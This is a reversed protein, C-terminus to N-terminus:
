GRLCEQWLREMLEGAGPLDKIEGVGKGAFLCMEAVGSGTDTRSPMGTRYRVRPNGSANMALVDGEGPRKGPAPCGAAEWMTLTRNRLAGHPANTWGDQFCVTLVSDSSKAAVLAAKYDQHVFAERTAVFRTGMFVGSAGVLLARRIDQGTAVGGAALVPTTKAIDLVRPLTEELPSIAQVHGGAATGQCILYDAGLDLARAAGEPSAIQVGMKAGAKRIAAVFENSPIGWSFQVIPVGADLVIQLTTVDFSLLYNASFPGKTAAKVQEVRPGATAASVGSQGLSGLGGAASVAIALEPGAATGMGSQFIPYKLGFAKMMASARPTPMAATREQASLAPVKRAGLAASALAIRRLFDRRNSSM